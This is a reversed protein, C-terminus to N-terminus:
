YYNLNKFKRSSFMSDGYQVISGTVKNPGDELMLGVSNRLYEKYPVVEDM